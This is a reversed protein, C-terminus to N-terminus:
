KKRGSKGKKAPAPHTITVTALRLVRGVSSVSVGVAMKAHSGLLARGTPNLNAVLTTHASATLTVHAAGVTVRKLNTKTRPKAKAQTGVIRKGVLKEEIVLVANAAVCKGTAATCKLSITARGPGGGVATVTAYNRPASGGSGTSGGGSVTANGTGGGSGSTSPQTVGNFVVAAGQGNQGNVTEANAGVM